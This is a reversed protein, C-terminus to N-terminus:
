APPGRQDPKRMLRLLTRRIRSWLYIVLGVGAALLVLAIVAALEPQELSIAVIAAVLGDETFSALVNSVPEPSANIGLRLGAKVGHSVLALAGGGGGAIV